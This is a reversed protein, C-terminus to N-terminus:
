NSANAQFKSVILVLTLLVNGGSKWQKEGRKGRDKLACDLKIYDITM